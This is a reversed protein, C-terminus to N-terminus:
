WSQPASSSREPRPKVWVLTYRWYLRRRIRAGPLADGAISRIFAYSESPPWVIPSPHDWYGSRLRRLHHPIIAALELPRDSLSPRALGVVALVGGLRLLTTLRTLTAETGMQHLSAVATIFDFSEHEFDFVLADGEIYTIDGAEPHARASGISGADLDIGVVEPILRRLERTLTGEGCGVDLARRCDSPIAELIVRHYHINHNWRQASKGM